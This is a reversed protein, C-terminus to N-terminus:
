KRAEAMLNVCTTLIAAALWYISHKWERKIAYTVFAGVSLVVQAWYFQVFQM